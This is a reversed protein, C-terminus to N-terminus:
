VEEFFEIDTLLFDSTLDDNADVADRTIRIRVRDGAAPSVSGGSLSITISRAEYATASFDLAQDAASPGVFNDANLSEGAGPTRFETDVGLVVTHTSTTTNACGILRVQLTGSGTYKPPLVFEFIASENVSADFAVVPVGTTPLVDMQAFTSLPLVVGLATRHLTFSRAM